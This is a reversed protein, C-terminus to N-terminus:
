KRMAKSLAAVTKEACVDWSFESARKKAKESMAKRQDEDWTLAIQIAESLAQGDKPSYYVAADKFFEPMPSTETSICVCGHAMAELVINPCAEVRSTMVFANCNQYCWTMENENLSGTWCIRDSLNNEQAWDKLKKQYGAMRHGSEGAIILRVSKEGQLSLYKMALLLDELGRAPRISGVTFIFKNHWDEPIIDPQYGNESKKVDVGHYVLSIKKNPINWRTVIFGSVFNSIAIVRNTKKIAHKGVIYQICKKLRDGLPDGHINTVFPEMNQIMNVVPVKKFRFFREVPIFIVDPSFKELQLHLQPYSCYNLFRYPKCNVFRVNPIPEFWGQVNLSEPSYCLIAELERHVAMVPLVNQLYKRYGGSM